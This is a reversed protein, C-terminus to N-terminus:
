SNNKKLDKRPRMDESLEWQESTAHSSQSQGAEDTLAILRQPIELYLCALPSAVGHACLKM